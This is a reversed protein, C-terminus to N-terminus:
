GPAKKKNLSESILQRAHTLASGSVARGSLMRAIENLREEDSLVRVDTVTRSARASKEVFFHRDAFAAIQPLHTIAIIQTTKSLASFKEGVVQGVPGSLGSDIEDFVMVPSVSSSLALSTKLALMVRSMEGGSIVDKLPTPTEGPNANFFFEIEEMGYPSPADLPKLKIEFVARELALQRLESVVKQTLAAAAKKRRSTLRAASSLLKKRAAALENEIDTRTEDSKKLGELRRTANEKFDILGQIDSANYKKKLREIRDLKGILEDARSEDFSAADSVFEALSEKLGDLYPRIASINEMAEKLNRGSRSEGVLTMAKTIIRELEDFGGPLSIGTTEGGETIRSIESALEKLRGANKMQPLIEKIKEDEGPSIKGLSEIDKIQYELLDTLREKEKIDAIVSELRSELENVIKYSSVYETLDKEGGISSSFGYIDLFERQFDPNLLSQHEHQGHIDVLRSAFKKLFTLTATKDNIYCRSRGASDIERRIVVEIGGAVSSSAIDYDGGALIEAAPKNGTIDFIGVLSCREAGKRIVAPTFRGGGSLFEVADVIISKGAGTEGTFVNLGEHFDVNLKEILIYNRIELSILM